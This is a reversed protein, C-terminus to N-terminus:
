KCPERTEDSIADIWSYNGRFISRMQLLLTKNVEFINGTINKFRGDLVKWKNEVVFMFRSTQLGWGWFGRCCFKFFSPTNVSHIENQRVFSPHQFEVYRLAKQKCPESIWYQFNLIFQLKGKLLKEDKSAFARKSWVHYWNSGLFNWEYNKQSM